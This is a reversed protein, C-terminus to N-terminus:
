FIRQEGFQVLVMRTVLIILLREYLLRKDDLMVRSTDLIVDLNTQQEQLILEGFKIGWTEKLTLASSNQLLDIYYIM